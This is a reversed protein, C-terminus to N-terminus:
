SMGVTLGVQTRSGDSHGLAKFAAADAGFQDFERGSRMSAPMETRVRVMLRAAPLRHPYYLRMACSSIMPDTPLLM